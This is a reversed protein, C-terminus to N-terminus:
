FLLGTLATAAGAIGAILGLIPFMNRRAIFYLSSLVLGIELLGEGIDYRLAREEAAESARNGSEAERQIEESQKKTSTKRLHTIPSCRPQLKARRASLKSLTKV